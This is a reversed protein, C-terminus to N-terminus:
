LSFENGSLKIIIGSIELKALLSNLNNSNLQSIELLEDFHKPGNGLASVIREEMASLAMDAKETIPAAMNLAAFVDEPETIFSTPYEKIFANGGRGSRCDISSPLVFVDKGQEVAINATILAGSKEGAEIVM